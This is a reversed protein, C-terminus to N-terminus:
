RLRRPPPEIGTTSEPKYQPHARLLGDIVQARSTGDAYSPGILFQIIAGVIAIALLAIIFWKLARFPM